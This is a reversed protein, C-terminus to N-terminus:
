YLEVAARYGQAGNPTLEIRGGRHALVERGEAAETRYWGQPGVGRAEAWALSGTLAADYSPFPLVAARATLDTAM